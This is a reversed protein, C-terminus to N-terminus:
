PLHNLLQHQENWSLAKHPALWIPPQLRSANMWDACEHHNRRTTEKQEKACPRAQNTKSKGCNQEVILFSTRSSSSSTVQGGVGFEM